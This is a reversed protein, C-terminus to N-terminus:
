PTGPCSRDHGTSGDRLFEAVLSVDRGRYGSALADSVVRHNLTGQPLDSGVCEALAEILGLDKAALELAMQTPAYEPDEFNPRRYHVFPAAIASHAFVDYALNRHIGAREALVLSEAISQNLGYVVNNVALKMAAGSGVPGLHFVRSGVCDFIPRAREADSAEGGVLITLSGSEAMAVSGSVPADIMACDRQGVLEALSRAASPSSTTMDICLAGTRLSQLAGDDGEYVKRVAAEDALVTVLVDSEMSLDAATRYAVTDLQTAQDLSTRWTRNYVGALLGAAGLRRAIAGGMRGLGAVGVRLRPPHVGDEAHDAGIV